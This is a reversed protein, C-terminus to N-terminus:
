WAFLFLLRYLQHNPSRGHLYVSTKPRATRMHLNPAIIRQARRYLKLDRCGSLNELIEIRQAEWPQLVELEVM